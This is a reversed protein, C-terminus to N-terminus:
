PFRQIIKNVLLTERDGYYAIHVIVYLAKLLYM